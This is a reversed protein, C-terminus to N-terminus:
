HGHDKGLLRRRVARMGLWVGLVIAPVAVGVALNVNVSVGTERVGKLLYSLLGASYYSIVIVSLGEVTQQLRLQLHTRRNMSALLDRNQGELAIDVRTRLLNAARSVRRSLAEQREEVSECTRMAPQFRRELFEGLGQLEPLRQERLNDIRRNVLQHYARAASLRFSNTATVRELRAALSSIEALLAQEDDLQNSHTIRETITELAQDLQTLERTADRALPLALLAMLRYTEIELLRQILRGARRPALGLDQILLRSYGDAHPKFDTYVRAAGDAVTSGAVNDTGFIALIQELERPSGERPDFTLHVCAVLQGPLDAIWGEPVTAAAPDAFPANRHEPAGACYVTYTAFETHREWRLHFSGLPVSHYNAEPAPEPQGCQRCLGAVHSRELEADGGQMAWHTARLPGELSEFPRAHLENVVLARLPHQTLEPFRKSM